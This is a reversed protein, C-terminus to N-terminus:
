IDCPALYNVGLAYHSRICLLEWRSMVTSMKTQSRAVLYLIQASLSTPYSTIGSFIQKHSEFKLNNSYFELKWTPEYKM